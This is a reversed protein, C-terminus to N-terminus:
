RMSSETRYNTERDFSASISLSSRPLGTPAIRDLVDKSPIRDDRGAVYGIDITVATWRLGGSTRAM